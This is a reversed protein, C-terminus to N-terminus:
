TCRETVTWYRGQRVPVYGPGAGESARAPDRPDLVLLRRALPGPLLQTGTASVHADTRLAGAGVGLWLALSPVTRHNPVNLPGCRRLLMGADALTHLEDTIRRQQELVRVTSQLRSAQAPIAAVTWALLAAAAVGTWRPAARGWPWRLAVAGVVVLLSAIPLLYRAIVPLGALALATFCAGLALVAALVVRGPRDCRWAALVLGPVAAALAPERIIEGIRRPAATVLGSVGTPRDLLAATARTGTLSWWPVGTTVVDFLMWGAPAVVVLAAAMARGGRTLAPLCWAAYVAALVWAEPRLTGAVALVALVPLGRRPRAVELAVAALLLAAYLVDTYGRLAWSVVPERTVVVSAALAASWGGALQHALVGVAGGLLLLSVAGLVLMVSEVGHGVPLLAVAFGLGVALPKPTPALTAQVEPRAGSAIQEGWLAAFASDYNLPGVSALGAIAVCAAVALALLGAARVPPCRAAACPPWM